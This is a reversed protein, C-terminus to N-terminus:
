YKKGVLNAIGKPQYMMNSSIGGIGNQTSGGNFVNFQPRVVQPQTSMGYNKGGAIFGSAADKGANIITQRGANQLAMKMDTDFQFKNMRDQYVKDGESIMVGQANMLNADRQGQMQQEQIFQNNISQDAQAQSALIGQMAMVPDVSGRQLAAQATAQGGLIARTQSAAYPNRANRQMQANGLMDKAYQSENGLLRKDGYAYYEPKIAKAQKLMKAGQIAGFISTGLSIAQGIPNSAKAISGIIKELGM